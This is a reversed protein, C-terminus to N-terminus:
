EKLGLLWDASVEYLACFDRLRSVSPEQRGSEYKSIQRQDTHLIEAARAQSLGKQKRAAKLRVCFEMFCWGM